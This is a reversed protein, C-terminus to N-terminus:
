KKLLMEVLAMRKAEVLKDTDHTSFRETDNEVTKTSESINFSNRGFLTFDHQLSRLM